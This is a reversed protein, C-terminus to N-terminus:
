GCGGGCQGAHEARNVSAHGARESVIKPHV